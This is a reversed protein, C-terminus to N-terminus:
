KNDAKNLKKVMKLNGVADANLNLWHKEGELIIQYTFEDPTSHETIGYVKAEPYNKHLIGQILPPFKDEGYYRISKKVNGDLDQWIRWKMGDNIFYVGYETESEYWVVTDAQPFTLKFNKLVKENPLAMAATSILLFLLPLLKTKMIM